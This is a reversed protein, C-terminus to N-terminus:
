WRCGSRVKLPRNFRMGILFVVFDGEIDATFRGPHVTMTAPRRERAVFRGAPRRGRPRHSTSSSRGTRRSRRSSPRPLSRRSRSGSASRAWTRPLSPWTSTPSHGSSRWGVRVPPWRLRTWAPKSQNGAYNNNVVTVTNINKRVATELEGIHYWLGADGTFVVVPRDPARVEGRPQGSAGLGSARAACTTRIPAAPTTSAAWGCVPTAPTSSWSRTM